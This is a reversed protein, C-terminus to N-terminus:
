RIKIKLEKVIKVMKQHIIDKEVHRVDTQTIKKCLEVITM